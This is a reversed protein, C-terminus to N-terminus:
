QGFGQNKSIRYTAPPMTKGTTKLKTGPGTQVYTALVLADGGNFFRRSDEFVDRDVTIVTKLTEAALSFTLLCLLLLKNMATRLTIDQM